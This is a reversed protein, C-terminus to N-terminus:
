HLEVVLYFMDISHFNLHWLFRPYGYSLWLFGYSFRPFRRTGEVKSLKIARTVASKALWLRSKGLECHCFSQPLLGWLLESFSSRKREKVVYRVTILWSKEKLEFRKAKPLVIWWGGWFIGLFSYSFGYSFWIWFFGLRRPVNHGATPHWACWATEPAASRWCSAVCSAQVISFGYSFWLFVMPFHHHLWCVHPNKRSKYSIQSLKIPFDNPIGSSSLDTLALFKMGKWGRLLWSKQEFDWMNRSLYVLTPQNARKLGKFKVVICLIEHCHSFIM